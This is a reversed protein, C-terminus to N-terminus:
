ARQGALTRPSRAEPPSVPGNKSAARSEIIRARGAGLGMLILATPFFQDFTWADFTAGGVLLALAAAVGAFVVAEEGPLARGHASWCRILVMVFFAIFLGVGIIGTEVLALNYANDFIGISPDHTLYGAGTLPRESVLQPLLDFREVRVDLNPDTDPRTFSNLLLRPTQPSIAFAALMLIAASGLLPIVRALHKLSLVLLPVVAVILIVFGTRSNTAPLGLILGALAALLWWRRPSSRASVFWGSVAMAALAIVASLVIPHPATGVSRIEGTLRQHVEVFEPRIGKPDDVLGLGQALTDFVLLPSANVFEWIALLAQLATLTIVIGLLKRAWGLDAGIQYSVVFLVSFLIVRVVGRQAGALQFQTMGVAQILPTSLLIALLLIGSLGLMGTPVPRPQVVMWLVWMVMLGVLVLEYPRVSTGIPLVFRDPILRNLVLYVVVLAFVSVGILDGRGATPPPLRIPPSSPHVARQALSRLRVVEGFLYPDDTSSIPRPSPSEIPAPTEIGGVTDLGDISTVEGAAGETDLSGVSTVEGAAGETDFRGVSTVEGAAGETDLSGVSTVEGAAGETDLSGVSTVEGAAGETDLSEVSTVEAAAGEIALIQDDDVSSLPSTVEIGLRNALDLVERSPISLRAALEYVRM